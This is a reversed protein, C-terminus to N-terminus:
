SGGVGANPDILIALNVDNEVVHTVSDRRGDDGEVVLLSQDTLGGLVLGRDVGGVGHVVDLTEDTSLEAVLSDLVVLLIEWELNDVLVGLWVDLNLDLTLLLDESWLLDRSHDKLLHLGDSLVVETGRDLINHDGDWGIEIVTLSLSSLVGTRNSTEVHHSDQVLGSSGGDSITKVLLLLHVNHDEIESSTSEIHRHKGNVLTHELDDGRSTIRMETTLIEILTDHVV